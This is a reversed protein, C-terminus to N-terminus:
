PLGELEILLDVAGQEDVFTLTVGRTTTGACDSVEVFGLRLVAAEPTGDIAFHAEDCCPQEWAISAERGEHSQAFGSAGPTVRPPVDLRTATLALARDLIQVTDCADSPTRAVWEIDGTYERVQRVAVDAADMERDLVLRLAFTSGITDCDGSGVPAVTVLLGAELADVVLETETRCGLQGWFVLLAGREDPSNLSTPLLHPEVPVNSASVVWPDVARILGTWDTIAATTRDGFNGELAVSFTRPSPTPETETLSVQPTAGPETALSWPSGSPTAGVLPTAPGDVRACGAVATSAVLILVLSRRIM